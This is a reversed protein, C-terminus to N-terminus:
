GTQYVYNLRGIPAADGDTYFSFIDGPTCNDTWKFQIAFKDTSIGLASKPIAVMMYKKYMSYSVEAM